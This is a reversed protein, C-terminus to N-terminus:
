ILQRLRAPSPATAAQREAFNLEIKLGLPDHVVIQVFGLEPIDRRLYPADLAALHKLLEDLRECSFAVHDVIGSTHGDAGASANSAPAAAGEEIATVHVLPQGAAYLWLGDPPLPEARFGLVEVYFREFAPLSTRSVRLNYHNLSQISM